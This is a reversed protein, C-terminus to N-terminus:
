ALDVIAILEEALNCQNGRLQCGRRVTSMYFAVLHIIQNSRKTQLYISM